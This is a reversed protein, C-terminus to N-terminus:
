PRAGHGQDYTAGTKECAWTAEDIRGLLDHAPGEWHSAMLHIRVGQLHGSAPEDRQGPLGAPVRAAALVIVVDNASTNAARIDTGGQEASDEAGEVARYLAKEGGALLAIAREPPWSFTPYLEVSDLLGLRGSTGAGVYILRGGAEIRPVAADVARAIDAAARAVAQAANAQDSVLADVLKRADYQDLAAHEANPTETTSM